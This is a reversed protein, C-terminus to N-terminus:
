ADREAALGPIMSARASAQEKLFVAWAKAPMSNVEISLTDGGVSTWALGRVIGVEDNELILDEHFKRKGLFDSLNSKNVRVTKKKNDYITWRKDCEMETDNLIDIQQENIDLLISVSPLVNEM